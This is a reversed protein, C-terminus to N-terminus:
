DTRYRPTRPAYSATASSASGLAAGSESSVPLQARVNERLKWAIMVNHRVTAVRKHATDRLTEDGLM